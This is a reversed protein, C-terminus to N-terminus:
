RCGYKIYALLSTEPANATEINAPSKGVIKPFSGQGFNPFIILKVNLNPSILSMSCLMPLLIYWVGFGTIKSQIIDLMGSLCLHKLIMEIYTM